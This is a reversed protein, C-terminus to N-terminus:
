KKCYQGRSPSEVIGEAAITRLEKYISGEAFGAPALSEFLTAPTFVEGPQMDEIIRLIGARCTEKKPKEQAQHQGETQPQAAAAAVVEQPLDEPSRSFRFSAFAANRSSTEKVETNGDKSKNLLLTTESKRELESGLHGRGKTNNVEGENCHLVAVIACNYRSCIKTLREVIDQAEKLDNVDAVLDAVGDIIVLDPRLKHVASVIANVRDRPSKTRLYLPVLEPANQTAPRGAILLAREICRAAHASSQETDPWLVRFPQPATIGGWSGGSIAVGALWSTFLSKGSKRRGTLLLLNERSLVISDGRLFVPAPTPTAKTLDLINDEWDAAWNALDQPWDEPRDQENRKPANQATEPGKEPSSTNDETQPPLTDWITKFLFVGRTPQGPTLRNIKAAAQIREDAREDSSQYPDPAALSLRSGGSPPPTTQLNRALQEPDDFFGTFRGRTTDLVAEVLERSALNNKRWFDTILEQNM